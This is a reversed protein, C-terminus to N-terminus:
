ENKYQKLLEIFETETAKFNTDRNNPLESWVAFENSYAFVSITKDRLGGIQFDYFFAIEDEWIPLVNDVCLQKMRDCTSQSDMEVYVNFINKM